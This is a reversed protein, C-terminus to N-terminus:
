EILREQYSEQEEIEEDYVITAMTETKKVQEQNKDKRKKVKGRKIKGDPPGRGFVNLGQCHMKITVTQDGADMVEGDINWLSKSKDQPIFTFERVRHAEVYPLTFPNNRLYGTRLLYRVYNTRSTAKVMILDTNGDSLHAGASVGNPSRPSRCSM